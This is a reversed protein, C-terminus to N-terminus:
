KEDKNNLSLNNIKEKKFIKSFKVGKEKFLAVFNIPALLLPKSFAKMTLEAVEQRLFPFIIAACNIGAVRKINEESLNESKISFFGAYNILLDFPYKSEENSLNGIEVELITIIKEPNDERQLVEISIDLSLDGWEDIELVNPRFFVIGLRIAELKLQVQMDM